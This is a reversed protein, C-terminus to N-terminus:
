AVPTSALTSARGGGEAREAVGTLADVAAAVVVVAVPPFSALLVDLALARPLASVVVPVPGACFPLSLLMVSVKLVSLVILLPAIPAPGTPAVAVTRLEAQTPLPLSCVPLVSVRPSPAPAFVSLLLSPAPAFVPMLLSTAPAFVSLLLLEWRPGRLNMPRGRDADLTARWSETSVVGALAFGHRRSEDGDGKGERLLSLQSAVAPGCEAEDRSARGERSPLWPACVFLARASPCACLSVCVCPSVCVSPCVCDAGAWNSVFVGPRVCVTAVVCVSAIVSPCM